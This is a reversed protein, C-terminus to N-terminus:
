AAGAVPGPAHGLVALLAQLRRQASFHGAIRERAAIRRLRRDETTLELATRCATAAEEPDCHRLVLGSGTVIEPMSSIDSVLPICGCLMAECLANPMGESLSWQVYWGARRYAERLAEAGLRGTFRINPPHGKYAQPDALGIVEFRAEPMLRAAALLLDVGKLAHVRNGPEAPGAVCLFLRDDRHAHDDPTWFGADFGYPVETWPTRCGPAFAKIGQRRPVMAAYTQEREILSRHVPLLHTAHVAATRSAWGMLRRAHDGYAIAPISACDSGALIIFCRRGLLAPLLAHYGSFHCIVDHRWARHKLLWFLQRFLQWPLSWSPGRVLQFTRVDFHAQLSTIDRDIFTSRRPYTYLLTRRGQAGTQQERTM